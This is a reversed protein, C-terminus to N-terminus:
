ENDVYYEELPTIKSIDKDHVLDELFRVEYKLNSYQVLAGHALILACVIDDHQGAPASYTMNGLENQKVEFAGLEKDLLSWNPLTIARHEFSTILENIANTKWANTFTVGKYNLNTYGMQDDIAQGVGTKDHWVILTENFKKAFLILCRVAEIYTRKHFRQFGVVRKTEVDFAIFVTFDVTKAWDAGIVVKSKECGEAFWLCSDSDSIIREGEFVKKYNGFVEAEDVFEALYYQRFLREPLTRRAHEISERPIWPNDETRATIAMMRPVRLQRRALAMEERAEMYKDYFHNKGLPTSFYAQKALTRTRTTENADYAEKRIKAAEDFVTGATAFGELALYNQAHFFQIYSDLSQCKLTMNSTNSKFDDKMPLQRTIYDMGIKCQGYYPAIWRWMARPKSILAKSIGTSASVTKGYKTGCSVVLDRCEPHILFFDMMLAQKKSHPAPFDIYM